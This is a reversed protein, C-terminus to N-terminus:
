YSQGEAHDVSHSLDSQIWVGYPLKGICVVSVANTKPLKPLEASLFKGISVVNGCKKPRKRQNLTSPAVSIRTGCFLVTTGHYSRLRVYLVLTISRKNGADVSAREWVLNKLQLRLGELSRRPCALAVSRASWQRRDTGGLVGLARTAASNLRRAQVSHSRYGPTGTRAGHWFPAWLSRRGLGRRISSPASASALLASAAGVLLSFSFDLLSFSPNLWQSKAHRLLVAKRSFSEDWPLQSIPLSIARLM